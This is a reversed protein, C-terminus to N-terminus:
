REFYGGPNVFVDSIIENGRKVDFYVLTLDEINLIVELDSHQKILQIALKKLQELEWALNWDSHWEKLPEWSEPNTLNM